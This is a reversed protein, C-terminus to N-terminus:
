HYIEEIKLKDLNDFYQQERKPVDKIRETIDVINKSTTSSMDDTSSESSSDSSSKDKGRAQELFQDDNKDLIPEAIVPEPIIPEPIVPQYAPIIPEPIILEPIIPEIKPINQEIVEPVIIPEVVEPDKNYPINYVSKSQNSDQPSSSYYIEVELRKLLEDFPILNNINDDISKKIIDKVQQRNEVMIYPKVYIQRASDVYIDHLFQEINIDNPFLSKIKKYSGIAPNDVSINTIVCAKILKDYINFKTVVVMNDKIKEMFYKDWSAIGRLALQYAKLNNTSNSLMQSENYIHFFSNFIYPILLNHLKNTYENM